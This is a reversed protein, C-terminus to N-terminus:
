KHAHIEQFGPNSRKLAGSRWRPKTSASSPFAPWGLSMTTILILLPTMSPTNLRPAVMLTCLLSSMMRCSTIPLHYTCLYMTLAIASASLPVIVDWTYKVNHFWVYPQNLMTAIAIWVVPGAKASSYISFRFPTCSSPVSTTLRSKRPTRENYNM